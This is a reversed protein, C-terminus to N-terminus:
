LRNENEDNERKLKPMVTTHNLCLMLSGGGKLTHTVVAEASVFSRSSPAKKM